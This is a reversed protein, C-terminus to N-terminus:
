KKKEEEEEEDVVEQEGVCLGTQCDELLMGCTDRLNPTGVSGSATQPPMHLALPSAIWFM